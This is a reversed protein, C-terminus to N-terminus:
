QQKDGWKATHQGVRRNAQPKTLFANYGDLTKREAVSRQWEYLDDKIDMHRFSVHHQLRRAQESSGELPWVFMQYSSM